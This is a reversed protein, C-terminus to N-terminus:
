RQSAKQQMSYDIFGMVETSNEGLWGSKTNCATQVKVFDIYKLKVREGTADVADSIKFRNYRIDGDEVVGGELIDISSNNDAYGWDYAPQVWMSGNGSSDYNREKLRTGRLTYSDAAVWLPYYYDQSHSSKLYDVVGSRGESDRWQVAMASDAPRYYTVAYNCITESKGYESGALEYWTDNPLGDGNEDQMVWVVGPESSGEFTNGAVGFDYDGSNVVSHDFGVVIYGGFGGLSLWHGESLRRTAYEIASQHTTQTGDFGATKTDNIFQGPAPMYAYVRNWSTTSQETVARFYTDETSQVTITFMQSHVEVDDGQTVRATLMIRYIGQERKDFIYIPTEGESLVEDDMTFTYHADVDSTYTLPALRLKRGSMLNFETREFSWVFARYAVVEVAFEIKSEGDENKACVRVDYEGLEEGVFTYSLGEGVSQGEVYWTITTPLSTERMEVVLNLGEGKVISFGDTAGALSISPRQLEVVDVRIQESASGAYTTVTLTIFTRGIEETASFVFARGNGVEKGEISWSYTAGEDFEYTPAIRIEEFQKVTYVGTESDLYIRPLPVKIEEDINCALALCAVCLIHLLRRM